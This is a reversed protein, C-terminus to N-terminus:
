TASAYNSDGGSDGPYPRDFCIYNYHFLLNCVIFLPLFICKLFLGSIYSVINKVYAM